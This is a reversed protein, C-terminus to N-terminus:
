TTAVNYRTKDVKCAIGAVTVAKVQEPASGLNTGTITVLTGGELLGSM